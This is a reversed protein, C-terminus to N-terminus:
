VTDLAYHKSLHPPDVALILYANSQIMVISDCYIKSMRATM